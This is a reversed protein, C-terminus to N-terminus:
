GQNSKKQESPAIRVMLRREINLYEVKQARKLRDFKRKYFRGLLKLANKTM